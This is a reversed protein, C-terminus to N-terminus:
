ETAEEETKDSQFDVFKNTCKVSVSDDLPCSSHLSVLLSVIDDIPKRSTLFRFIYLIGPARM